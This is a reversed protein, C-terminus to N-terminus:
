LADDIERAILRAEEVPDTAETVPRGVVLYDAGAKIAEGAAMTREPEQDDLPSNKHRIGTAVKLLSSFEDEYKRLFVLERPSTVIGDFGASVAYRAFQLMAAKVPKGYTLHADNEEYSTLVGVALAISSGKNEVARRMASISATAHVTFMRACLGRMAKTAKGVTNPIDHFKGDLFLKGDLMAFLSRITGVQFHAETESAATVFLTIMAMLLELGIKFGGVYEHLLEVLRMAEAPTDVDLAVIIREYPLLIKCSANDPKM